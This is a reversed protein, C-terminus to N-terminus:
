ALRETRDLRLQIPSPLSFLRSARIRLRLMVHAAATETAARSLRAPRRRAFSPINTKIGTPPPTD